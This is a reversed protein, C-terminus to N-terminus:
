RSKWDGGFLGEEASNPEYNAEYHQTSSERIMDLEINLKSRYATITNAVEGPHIRPNGEHDFLTEFLDTTLDHIRVTAIRYSEGLGNRTLPSKM